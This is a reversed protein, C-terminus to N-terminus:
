GKFDTPRARRSGGRSANESWLSGKNVGEWFDNDSQPPVLAAEFEGVLAHFSQADLLPAAAAAEWVRFRETGATWKPDLLPQQNRDRELLWSRLERMQAAAAAHTRCRKVEKKWKTVPAQGKARVEDRVMKWDIANELDLLAAIAAAMDEEDGEAEEEEMTLPSM